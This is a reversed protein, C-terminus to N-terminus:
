HPSVSWLCTFLCMFLKLSHDANHFFFLFVIYNSLLQGHSLLKETSIQVSRHSSMQASVQDILSEPSSFKLCLSCTCLGQPLFWSQTHLLCRGILGSCPSQLRSHHTVLDPLCASVLCRPTKWGHYSTTNIRMTIRLSQPLTQNHFNCEQLLGRAATPLVSPLLRPCFCASSKLSKCYDTHSSFAAQVLSTTATATSLLPWSQTSGM